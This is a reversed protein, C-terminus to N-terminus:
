INPIPVQYYELSNNEIYTNIQNLTGVVVKDTTVIHTSGKIIKSAIKDDSTVVIAYKSSSVTVDNLDETHEIAAM